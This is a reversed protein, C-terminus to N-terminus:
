VRRIGSVHAKLYLSWYGQKIKRLVERMTCNELGHADVILISILAVPVVLIGEHSCWLGHTETMAGKEEWLNKENPFAMDQIAAIDDLMIHPQITLSGYHCSNALAKATENAANNKDSVTILLNNTKEWKADRATKM